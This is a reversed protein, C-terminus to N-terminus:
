YTEQFYEFLLNYYNNNIILELTPIFIAFSLTEFIIGVLLLVILLFLKGKKRDPVYKFTEFLNTIM